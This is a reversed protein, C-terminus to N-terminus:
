SEGRISSMERQWCGGKKLKDKLMQSNEGNNKKERKWVCMRGRLIVSPSSTSFSDSKMLNYGNERQLKREVKKEDMRFGKGRKILGVQIEKKAPKKYDEKEM